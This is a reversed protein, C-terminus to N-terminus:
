QLEGEGRFEPGRGRPEVFSSATGPQVAIQEFQEFCAPGAFAC